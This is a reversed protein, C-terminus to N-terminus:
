NFYMTFKSVVNSLGHDKVDKIFSMKKQDDQALVSKIDELVELLYKYASDNKISDQVGAILRILGANGNFFAPNNKLYKHALDKRKNNKM